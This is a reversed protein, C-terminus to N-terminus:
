ELQREKLSSASRQLHKKFESPRILKRNMVQREGLHVVSTVVGRHKEIWTFLVEDMVMQPPMRPNPFLIVKEYCVKTNGHERDLKTIKM